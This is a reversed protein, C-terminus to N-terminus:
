NSEMKEINLKKKAIIEKEPVSSVLEGVMDSYIESTASQLTSWMNDIDNINIFNEASRTGKEMDDCFANILANMKETSERKIEAVTKKM